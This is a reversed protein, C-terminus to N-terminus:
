LCQHRRRHPSHSAPDNPQIRSRGAEVGFASPFFDRRCTPCHGVPEEVIATGGRVAVPRPKWQLPCLRQCTPCPAETGFLKGQEGTMGEVAGKVLAKSAAVAIEEMDALTVDLGPGQPFAERAIMKGWGAAIEQIEKL